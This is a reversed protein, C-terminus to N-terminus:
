VRERWSARGIEQPDFNSEARIVAVALRPVVGYEPALRKVLEIVQRQAPTPPEAFMELLEALEDRPPRLCDPREAQGAGVYRLMRAGDESGNRAAMSFFYGALGDDRVVGRGNAYMWGLRFQSEVDGLRAAECYKAAALSPDKVVGERHERAIAELRLKAAREGDADGSQGSAAVPVTVALGCFLVVPIQFLRRFM